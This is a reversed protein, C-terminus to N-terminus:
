KLSTKVFDDGFLIDWGLIEWIQRLFWDEEGSIQELLKANDLGEQVSTNEIKELKGPLAQEDDPFIGHLLLRQLNELSDHIIDSNPGSVGSCTKNLYSSRLLSQLIGILYPAEIKTTLRLDMENGLHISELGNLPAFSADGEKDDPASFLYLSVRSGLYNLFVSTVTEFIHNQRDKLQAITAMMHTLTSAISRCNQKILKSRESNDLIHQRDSNKHQGQSVPRLRAEAEDLCYHHLRGLLYQIVSSIQRLTCAYNIETTKQEADSRMRHLMLSWIQRAATCAESLTPATLAEGRQALADDQSNSMTEVLTECALSIMRPLVEIKPPKGRPCRAFGFIVRLLLARDLCDTDAYM